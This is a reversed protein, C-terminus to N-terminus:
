RRRRAMVFGYAGLTNSSFTGKVCMSVPTTTSVNVITPPLTLSPFGNTALASIQNFATYSSGRVAGATALTAATTNLSAELKTAGTAANANWVIEGWVDWDGATLNLGSVDIVVTNAMVAGATGTQTGSQTGSSSISTPTFANAITTAIQFTNTTISSPVTYYVTGSTVGTPLAGGSNTFVVPQPVASSFSHGTWTVVCPAAITMTVVATTATGFVMDGITQGVVGTAAGTGATVGTTPGSFATSATVTTGTLAAPTNAGIITSDMNTASLTTFVGSAPTTAGVTGNVASTVTTASVTTFAGTSATTAGVTGNFAGGTIVGTSGIGANTMVVGLKDIATAANPEVVHDIPSLTQSAM